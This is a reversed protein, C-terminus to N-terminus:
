GSTSAGRKASTAPTTSAIRPRYTLIIIDNALRRTDVLDLKTPSCERFLLGPPGGRGVFLPYLWLRIEDLLGHEMLTFSVPGFGYQVIHQGPQQKLRTLEAVIDGDIVTTNNWEPAKLTSSVVYKSMTNIRDSFPDGSRNPWAQAFSEYTRRGMLVADCAFLLETQIATDDGDDSKDLPPWLHPNEIVGDLSIFTSNIIKRMPKGLLELDRRESGM